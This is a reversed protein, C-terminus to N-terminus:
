FHGQSQNAYQYSLICQRSQRKTMFNGIMQLLHKQSQRELHINMFTLLHRLQRHMNLLKCGLLESSAFGISYLLNSLIRIWHNPRIPWPLLCEKPLPAANGLLTRKVNKRPLLGQVCMKKILCIALSLSTAFNLLTNISETYGRVTASRSNHSNMLQELFCALVFKYGPEPSCTDPILM